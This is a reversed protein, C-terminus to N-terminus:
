ENATFQIIVCGSDSCGAIAQPAAAPTSSATIGRAFSGGGGGGASSDTDNGHGGGGGGGYGGGGGGGGSDCADTGTGALGGMGAGGLDVSLANVFRTSDASAQCSSGTGGPGGLGGPGFGGDDPQRDGQVFACAEGGGDDGGQDRPCDSAGFGADSIDTGDSIAGGGSGGASKGGGLCFGEENQGGGGGGGGAVLLLSDPDPQKGPNASFDETTVITAAGGAGGCTSNGDDGKGGVFYYLQTTGLKNEIDAATTDTQAVGGAGGAAGDDASSGGAGGIALISMSTSTTVGIGRSVLEAILLKLDVACAGLSLQCTASDADHSVSRCIPTVNTCASTTSATEAKAVSVAGLRRRGHRRHGAQDHVAAVYTGPALNLALAAEVDHAPQLAQPILDANPHNRWDDNSAVPNGNLSLTLRPDGIAEHRGLEGQDVLSPGLGRIVTFVPAGGTVTFRTTGDQAPRAPTLTTVEGLEGAGAGGTIAALALSLSAGLVRPTM